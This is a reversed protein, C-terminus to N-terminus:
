STQSPDWACGQGLYLWQHLLAQLLEVWIRSGQSPKKPGHKILILVLLRWGRFMTWSICYIILYLFVKILLWIQHLVARKQPQFRTGKRVGVQGFLCSLTEGDPAGGHCCLPHKVSYAQENVCRAVCCAHNFFDYKQVSIQWLKLSNSDSEAMSM